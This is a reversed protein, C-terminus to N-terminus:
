DERARPASAPPPAPALYAQRHDARRWFGKVKVTISHIKGDHAPPVFAISYEHRILQAIEAYARDFDRQKKPFYVRGGTLSSLERLVRNGARFGQKVYARDEKEKRSLVKHKITPNLSDGSLSVAFVRVDSTELEQQIAQWKGEPTTDVGTSLVVISKKGPSTELLDVASALGASLNLQAYGLMFNLNQLTYRATPKDATFDLLLDPARSYGAIAVRDDASLGNLLKEAARVHEKGFFVVAPGSEIFLLVQAPEAVSLFDTIPQEVGNDFVRFDERRLGDVFNGDSGTVIVGVNVRDVTVQIKPVQAQPKEQASVAFCHGLTGALFLTPVLLRLPKM